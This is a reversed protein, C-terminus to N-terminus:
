HGFITSILFYSNGVGRVSTELVSPAKTGSGSVVDANDEGFLQPMKKLCANDNLRPKYM